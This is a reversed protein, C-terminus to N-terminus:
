SSWIFGNHLNPFSKGARLLGQGQPARGTPNHVTTRSSLGMRRKDEIWLWAGVARLHPDPGAERGRTALAYRAGHTLCRPRPEAGLAPALLYCQLLMVKEPVSSSSKGNNEMISRANQHTSFM